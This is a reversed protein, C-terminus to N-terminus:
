KVMDEMFRLLYFAVFGVFVGFISLKVQFWDGNLGNSIGNYIMLGIFVVEIIYSLKHSKIDQLM